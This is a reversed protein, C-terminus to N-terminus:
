HSSGIVKVNEVCVSPVVANQFQVSDKGIESVQKFWDFAVGSVMGGKIAHKIEGNRIFFAQSLQASILGSGKQAFGAMSEVLVGKDVESILQSRSKNGTQIILNSPYVEPKARYGEGAIMRTMDFGGPYRSANGTNKTKLAKATTAHHLFSELKGKRLLVTNQSPYGEDDFSRSSFGNKFTADDTITLNESTITQGIKGNWASRGAVVSEGKVTEILVDCFQNSVAEPGFVVTGQLSAIAKPKFLAIVKRGVNKGVTEPDLDASRKFMFDYCSGTLESNQKGSGGLYILSKTEKEECDVGLTNIIGRFGSMYLVRGDKAIVRKDFGEAANIARNAIGVADEVTTEAVRPDFLGNVKNIRSEEPLAFNTVESSARAIALAKEGAELVTKESLSNTCAFGVKNGSVVIRFGVGSDFVRNQTLIESNRVTVETRQISTFFAEAHTIDKKELKKIGEHAYDRLKSWAEDLNM